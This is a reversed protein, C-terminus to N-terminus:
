SKMKLQNHLENVKKQIDMVRDELMSNFTKRSDSFSVHAFYQWVEAVETFPLQYPMYVDNDSILVLSKSEQDTRLRKYVVGDSKSIVIYTRDDKIDSIKEVYRSIVISGSEIPLMSDGSIDFGRYTGRPINPFYIKPLEKLYQPDSFSQLYGAEAKTEVLEINSKQHQDVSIALIKLNRENLIELEQNSIRGNILDDVSVDFVSAMRILLSISPETNGREYEGLTSRPIGLKDALDFQTMEKQKRLYKLNEVLM